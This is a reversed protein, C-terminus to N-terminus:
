HDICGFNCEEDNRSPGDTEPAQSVPTRPSAYAKADAFDAARQHAPQYGRDHAPAGLAPLAFLQIALIFGLAAPAGHSANM